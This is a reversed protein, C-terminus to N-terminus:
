FEGWVFLESTAKNRQKSVFIRVENKVQLVIAHRGPIREIHYAQLSSDRFQASSVYNAGSDQACRHLEKKGAGARLEWHSLIWSDRSGM